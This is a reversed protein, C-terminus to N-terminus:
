ARRVALRKSFGLATIAHIDPVADEPSAGALLSRNSLTIGTPEMLSVM